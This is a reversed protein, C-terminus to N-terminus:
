AAAPEPDPRVVVTDAIAIIGLPPTAVLHLSEGLALLSPQGAHLTVSMLCLKRGVLNVISVLNAMNLLNLSARPSGTTPRTSAPTMAAPQPLELLEEEEEVFLEGATVLVAEGAFVGVVVFVAM